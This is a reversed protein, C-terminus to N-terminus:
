HEINLTSREGGGREGRWLLWLVIFLPILSLAFFLPGGSRHLASDIITPDVHISLLVITVIRFGNRLLGLPVVLAVLLGRRWTSKLFLHSALLSTIVLVWTSRIGSCEQAVTIRGIRPLEFTTQSVRLFTTGTLQFFFNTVEASGLVLWHEFSSVAQDPLPIMFILFFVPFALARLWASGLLCFAGGVLFCLYSATTISLFDNPSLAERGLVSILALCGAGLFGFLAVGWWSAESVEPLDRRKRCILYASVFPILLIHSHLENGLAHRILALLPLAFAITLLVAFLAFKRWRHAGGGVVGAPDGSAPVGSAPDEPCEPMEDKREMVRETEDM